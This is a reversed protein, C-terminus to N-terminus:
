RTARRSRTSQELEAGHVTLAYIVVIDLGIVLAAWVPAVDLFSLNVLASLWAVFIGAARAWRNGDWLIRAGAILSLVGGLLHAWGWATLSQFALLEGPERTLYSDDLLAIVGLMAWFVGMTVM